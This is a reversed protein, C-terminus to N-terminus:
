DLLNRITVEVMSLGNRGAARRILKGEKDFLFYAPWYENEFAKKVTHHNDIGVPEEIGYKEVAHRVAKVDVDSKMRPCHISIVKLGRPGYAKRLSQMKILNAHCIHCSLAWFYVLIPTGALAKLDPQSPIWETVGDLSPMPTHLHLPM